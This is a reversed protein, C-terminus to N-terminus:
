SRNVLRTRLRPAIQSILGCKVLEILVYPVFGTMLAVPWTLKLFFLLWVTGILLQSISGVFTVGLLTLPQRGFWAIGIAVVTSYGLFGILYGGTPGTLVSMGSMLNAFIPLGLLGLTLYALIIMLNLRYPLITALLGVFLTQLTVAITWIPLSIQASIILSALGLSAYSIQRAKSLTM